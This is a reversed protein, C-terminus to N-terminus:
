VIAPGTPQAGTESWYGPTDGVTSCLLFLPDTCNNKQYTTSPPFHSKSDNPSEPIVISHIGEHIAYLAQLWSGKELGFDKRSSFFSPCFH